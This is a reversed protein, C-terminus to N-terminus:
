LMLEYKLHGCDWVRYYGLERMIQTVTKTKDYGRKILSGKTFNFRHYRKSNKCWFHNPLTQKVFSFKLKKYLNDDFSTWRLDAYSIIKTPNYNKIFYSLLKSAAGIVIYDTNTCFRSLEVFNEKGNNGLAVRPTSYTMVAVLLKKYYLGLKLYSASSGQIHHANLFANCETPQIKKIECNKAYIKKNSSCKLIHKLKKKVLEKHNNWEDEFIHITRIQKKKLEVTKELHYKNTKYIESHWFLGDVEIALNLIPIYFDIEKPYIVKRDNTIIKTDGIAEKLFDFMENEIKKNPHFKLKPNCVRCVPFKGNDLTDEFENGCIGCKFKYQKNDIVGTYMEKTFLPICDHASIRDFINDMQGEFSKKRQLNETTKSCTTIVNFRNKYQSPTLNHKKLHKNTLKRFVGECILCKIGNNIVDNKIFENIKKNCHFTKWLHNYEVFKLLFQDISMNHNKIIHNTFAGSKNQLDVTTWKCIPCQLINPMKYPQIDFYKSVNVVDFIINHKQLHRTIIGSKNKEDLTKWRCLKCYLENKNDNKIKSVRCLNYDKDSFKCTNSCYIRKKNKIGSNCIKCKKM